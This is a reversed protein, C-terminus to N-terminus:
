SSACCVWRCAAIVASVGSAVSVAVTLTYDTMLAAAATLGAVDGLNDRAVIYSGGGKPYAMITQRYSAGVVLMLLIIAAAIPLSLRFSATGAALLILLIAETAYAVSSIADSSLVALAKLKSLREHVYNQLSLPDGVLAHKFVTLTRGTAGTPESALRTARLIGPGVGDFQASRRVRV